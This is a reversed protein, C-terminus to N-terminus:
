RISNPLLRGAGDMGKILRPLFHVNLQHQHHHYIINKFFAIMSKTNFHETSLTKPHGLFLNLPKVFSHFM